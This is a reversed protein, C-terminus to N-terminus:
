EKTLKDRLATIYKDLANIKWELKEKEFKALNMETEKESVEQSIMAKIQEETFKKVIKTIWKPDLVEEKEEKLELMRSAKISDIEQDKVLIIEVRKAKEQYLEDQIEILLRKDENDLSKYWKSLVKTIKDFLLM